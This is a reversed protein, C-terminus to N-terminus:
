KLIEKIANLNDKIYEDLTKGFVNDEIIEQEEPEKSM